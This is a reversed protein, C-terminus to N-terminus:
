KKTRGEKDMEIHKQIHWMDLSESIAIKLHFLLIVVMLTICVVVFTYM